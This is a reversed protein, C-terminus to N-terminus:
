LIEVKGNEKGVLIKTALNFFFGTEIVGPISKLFLDANEPTIKQPSNWKLDLIFNRQDTLFPHNKKKNLRLTANFGLNEIEKKTAAFGFRAVEVPLPFAGLKKVCKKEDVIVIMQTSMKATIKERLLAGGGGKILRKQPDVEDAGDVDVDLTSVKEPDLLPIGYFKALKESAKSTPIGKVKLKSEGLYTIFFSATSGSGLGVLMGDKIFKLAEKAARKKADTILDM